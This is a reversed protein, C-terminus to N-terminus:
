PRGAALRILNCIEDEAHDHVNKKYTLKRNRRRRAPRFDDDTHQAFSQNAFSVSDCQQAKIRVTLARRALIRRYGQDVVGRRKVLQTGIGTPVRSDLGHASIRRVSAQLYELLQNVLSSEIDDIRVLEAPYMTAYPSRGTLAPQRHHMRYVVIVQEARLARHVATATPTHFLTPKASNPALLVFKKGPINARDNGTRLEHEAPVQM